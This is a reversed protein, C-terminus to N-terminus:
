RFHRHCHRDSGNLARLRRRRVARVNGLAAKGVDKRELMEKKMIDVGKEVRKSLRTQRM